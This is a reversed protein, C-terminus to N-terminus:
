QASIRRKNKKKRVRDYQSQKRRSDLVVQLRKLKFIKRRHFSGVKSLQMSFESLFGSVTVAEYM